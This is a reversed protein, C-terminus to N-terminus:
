KLNHRRILGVAVDEDFARSLILFTTVGSEARLRSKAHDFSEELNNADKLDPLKPPDVYQEIVSIESELILSDHGQGTEALVPSNTRESSSAEITREVTQLDSRSEPVARNLSPSPQTSM